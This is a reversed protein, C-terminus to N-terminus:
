KSSGVIMNIFTVILFNKWFELAIGFWSLILGLIWAQFALALFAVVIVGVILGFIYAGDKNELNKFADSNTKLKIM